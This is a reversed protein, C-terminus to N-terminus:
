RTFTSRNPDIQRGDYQAGRWFIGGVVVKMNAGAGQWRYLFDSVTWYIFSFCCSRTMRRGNYMKTRTDGDDVFLHVNINTHTPTNTERRRTAVGVLPLSRGSTWEIRRTSYWILNYLVLLLCVIAAAAVVYGRTRKIPTTPQTCLNVTRNVTHIGHLWWGLVMM